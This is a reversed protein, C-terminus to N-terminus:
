FETKETKTINAINSITLTEPTTEGSGSGTSSVSGLYAKIFLKNLAQMITLEDGHNLIAISVTYEQNADYGEVVAWLNWNTSENGLGTHTIKLDADQYKATVVIDDISLTTTVSIGLDVSFGTSGSSDKYSTTTTTVFKPIKYTQTLYNPLTVIGNIHNYTVGNVSVATTLGDAGNKGAPGTDGKPGQEGVEGKDGKQGPTGDVGAPGQPGTEGTDGKPGQPGTAGTDGKDGKEGQPGPTLQIAAIKKDVSETTAYSSLDVKGGNLSANAIAESIKTDTQTTTYYQSMDPTIGDKGAPGTEGQLGQPGVAGDNGKDGKDGKLTGNNLKDQFSQGDNFTIQSANGTTKTVYNSLDVDGGSIQAETIKEKVYVKLGDNVIQLADFQEKKAM